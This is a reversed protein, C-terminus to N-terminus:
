ARLSCLVVASAAAFAWVGRPMLTIDASGVCRPALRCLVSHAERFDEGPDCARNCSTRPICGGPGIEAPVERVPMGAVADDDQLLAAEGLALKASHVDRQSCQSAPVAVRSKAPFPNGAVSLSKSGLLCSQCTSNGERYLANLYRPRGSEDVSSSQGAM